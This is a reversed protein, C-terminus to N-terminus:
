HVVIRGFLEAGYIRTVSLVVGPYEVIRIARTPTSVPLSADHKKDNVAADGCLRPPLYHAHITMSSYFLTDVKCFRMPAGVIQISWTCIVIVVTISCHLIIDVQGSLTFHLIPHLFKPPYHMLASMQKRLIHCNNFWFWIYSSAILRIIFWWLVLICSPRCCPLHPAVRPFLPGVPPLVIFWLSYFQLAISRLACAEVLSLGAILRAMAFNMTIFWM